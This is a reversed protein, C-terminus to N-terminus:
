YPSFWEDRFTKITEEDMDKGLFLGKIRRELERDISRTESALDITVYLLLAAEPLALKPQAELRGILDLVVKKRDRPTSANFFRARLETDNTARRLNPM